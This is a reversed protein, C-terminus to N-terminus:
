FTLASGPLHHYGLWHFLLGLASLGGEFLGPGKQVRGAPNASFVVTAPGGAVVSTHVSM